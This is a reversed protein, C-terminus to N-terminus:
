SRLRKKLLVIIFLIAIFSLVLPALSYSALTEGGVVAGTILNEKLLGSYGVIVFVGSTLFIALGFGLLLGIIM